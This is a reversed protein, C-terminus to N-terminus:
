HCRLSMFLVAQGAPRLQFGDAVPVGCLRNRRESPGRLITKSGHGPVVTEGATMRTSGDMSLDTINQFYQDFRSLICAVIVRTPYTYVDNTFGFYFGPTLSPLLINLARPLGIM